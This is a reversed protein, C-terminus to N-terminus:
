GPAAARAAAVLDAHRVADVVFLERVTGHALAERVAQAGEV